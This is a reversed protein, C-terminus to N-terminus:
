GLGLDKGKKMLEEKEEDSMSTFMDQMKKLETPDMKSLMEQAQKMMTAQDMGAFPNEAESDLHADQKSFIIKEDTIETEVNHTNKIEELVKNFSFGKRDAIEYMKETPLSVKKAPFGNAELNSMIQEIFETM